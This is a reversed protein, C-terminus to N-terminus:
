PCNEEVVQETEEVVKVALEAMSEYVHVSSGFYGKKIAELSDEDTIDAEEGLCENNRNGATTLREILDSLEASANELTTNCIEDTKAEELPVTQAVFEPFEEAPSDAPYGEKLATLVDEDEFVLALGLCTVSENDTATIAGVDADFEEDRGLQYQALPDASGGDEGGDGGGGGGTACGLLLVSVTLGAMTRTFLTAAKMKTERNTLLKPINLRDPQM